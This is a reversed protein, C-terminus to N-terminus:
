KAGGFEQRLREERIFAVGREAALLRGQQAAMAKLRSAVQEAHALEPMIRALMAEPRTSEGVVRLRAAGKM